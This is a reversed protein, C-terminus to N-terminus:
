DLVEQNIVNERIPKDDLVSLINKATQLGMRDLSEKTVGAMHPASVVNGLTLLPNNPQVPEQEYVDLGAGALKGSSLAAYLAPEDIIGGRATNVLYATPRMRALRAANFMGVTEPTKPCHVTVFDAKPLAQDLNSVAQCGAAIIEAASKYPDYVLVNMEMAQCRKATRTGIRGFGVILVTKGFLDVPVASMRKNWQNAQVMANLEAGRKALTMMMFMAQEAVSPSNASGAVMLPIKRNTLAPVDVADYGVGIRAVVQMERAAAIEAEGFPTIGLAVGNVPAHQALLARFDGSTITGPFQVPEIDGRERLLDWGVKAMSQTILLKKKNTAMEM